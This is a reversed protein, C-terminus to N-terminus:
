FPSQVSFRRGNGSIGVTKSKGVAAREGQENAWTKQQIKKLKELEGMLYNITGEMNKVKDALDEKELREQELIEELESVKNELGGAKVDSVLMVNSKGLLYYYNIGNEVLFETYKANPKSIHCNEINSIATTSVGAKQALEASNIFIGSSILHERASLYKQAIEKSIM